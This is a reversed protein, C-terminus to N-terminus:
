KEHWYMTGTALFQLTSNTADEPAPCAFLDCIYIDGMGPKGQTSMNRPTVTNGNEDDDYVINRNFPYYRKLRLPMSADNQSHLNKTVDSHITVRKRDVPANIPSSWDTTFVGNFLLLYLQDLALVFDNGVASNGTLDRLKRTTLDNPSAQAQIYGNNFLAQTIPGKLSFVIRRWWWVSNDTPVMLISEAYGKAYCTTATRQPTIGLGSSTLFRAHPNFLLCHVNGYNSNTTKSTMSIATGTVLSSGPNPNPGTASAFIMQDKKKTSM